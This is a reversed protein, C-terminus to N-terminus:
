WGFLKSIQPLFIIFLLMILFIIGIFIYAGKNNNKKVEVNIEEKKVEFPSYQNTHSLAEEMAEDKNLNAVASLPDVQPGQNNQINNFADQGNNNQNNMFSDNM